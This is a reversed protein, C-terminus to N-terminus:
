QTVFIVRNGENDDTRNIRPSGNIAPSYAFRVTSGNAVCSEERDDANGVQPISQRLKYRALYFKYSVVGLAIALVFCLVIFVTALIKWSSNTDSNPSGSISFLLICIEIFTLSLFHRYELELKQYKEEIFLLCLM